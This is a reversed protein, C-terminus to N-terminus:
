NIDVQTLSPARLVLDGLTSFIREKTEMKCHADVVTVLTNRPLHGVFNRWYEKDCKKYVGEAVIAEAPYTRDWDVYGALTAPVKYNQGVGGPGGALFVFLGFNHGVVTDIQWNLDHPKLQAEWDPGVVLVPSHALIIM